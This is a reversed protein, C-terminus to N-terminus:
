NGHANSSTICDYKHIRSNASFFNLILGVFTYKTPSDAQDLRIAANVKNHMFFPNLIGSPNNNPEGPLKFYTKFKSM